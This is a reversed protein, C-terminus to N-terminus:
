QEGGDDPVTIGAAGDQMHFLCCNRHTDPSIRAHHAIFLQGLSACLSFLKGVRQADLFAGFDDLLMIPPLQVKQQLCHWEALKLSLAFLRQQGVSAFDKASKKDCHVLFDDRHPGVLTIGYELEQARKRAFEQIYAKELDDPFMRSLTTEYSIAFDSKKTAFSLFYDRAMPVLMELAQKRQLTIYAASISLEQEWITISAVTKERLLANRQKLARAFRYLHRVYHSDKQSIHIDLFRRRLAPSGTILAADDPTWIVGPILGLLVSSSNCPQSDLLVQRKQGDYSIALTSSIGGKEFCAEVFFGKKGYDIADRLRLTRFSGGSMCLYLAELLSTKGEGNNGIIENATPSFFFTAEKLNRFHRVYVSKLIVM